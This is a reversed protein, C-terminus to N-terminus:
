IIFWLISACCPVILEICSKDLYTLESFEQLKYEHSIVDAVDVIVVDSCM